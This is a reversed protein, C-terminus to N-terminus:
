AAASSTVPVDALCSHGSRGPLTAQQWAGGARHYIVAQQTAKDEGVAVVVDGSVGQSNYAVVRTFTVTSPAGANADYWSPADARASTSGILCAFLAAASALLSVECARPREKM